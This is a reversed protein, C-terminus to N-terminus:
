GRAGTPALAQAPAPPTRGGVEFFTYSLTVTKVDRPLKPDLYFVVPWSKKEGPALTHETFCFCELKNFHAGAQQPAYSPIAQATMTRNQVNQFEYVVTALEGPHVQLTRVAPKFQWPGRANADFEVTIARSTDVLTNRPMDGGAVVGGRETLSLVNLGLAQCVRKYLPVLAYGFGFMLVAIVLLKVLTRRNDAQLAAPLQM